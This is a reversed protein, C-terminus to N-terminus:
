ASAEATGHLATQVHQYYRTRLIEVDYRHAFLSWRLPPEYACIAYGLNGELAANLRNLLKNQEESLFILGYVSVRVPALESIIAQWAVYRSKDATGPANALLSGKHKGRTSIVSLLASRVDSDLGPWAEILERTNKFKM